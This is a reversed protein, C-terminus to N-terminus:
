IHSQPQKEYRSQSCTPSHLKYAVNNDLNGLSAHFTKSRSVGLFVKNKTESKVHKKSSSYQCHECLVLNLFVDRTFLATLLVSRM